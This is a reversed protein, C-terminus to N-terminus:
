RRSLKQCLCARPLPWSQRSALARCLCARPLPATGPVVDTTTVKASLWATLSEAFLGKASPWFHGEAFFFSKKKTKSGFKKQLGQM